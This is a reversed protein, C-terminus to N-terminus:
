SIGARAASLAELRKRGVVDCDFDPAAALSRASYGARLDPDSIFCELAELLTTIDYFDVPYATDRGQFPLVM